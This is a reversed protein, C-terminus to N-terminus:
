SSGEGAAINAAVGFTLAVGLGGLAFMWLFDSVGDTATPADPVSTAMSTM